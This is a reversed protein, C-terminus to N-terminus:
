EKILSFLLGNYTYVMNHNDIRIENYKQESERGSWSNRCPLSITHYIKTSGAGLGASFSLPCTTKISLKIKPLNNCM